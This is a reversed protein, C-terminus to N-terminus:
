LDLKLATLAKRGAAAGGTRRGGRKMGGTISVQKDEDVDGSSEPADESSAEGSDEKGPAVDIRPPARAAVVPPPARAVIPGPAVPPMASSAPPAAQNRVVREMQQQAQKNVQIEDRMSMMTSQMHGMRRREEDLQARLARIEDQARTDVAPAHQQGPHQQGPHPQHQVHHTGSPPQDRDRMHQGPTFDARPLPADKGIFSNSSSPPRMIPRMPPANPHNAHQMPAPPHMPTPPASHVVPPRMPGGGGGLAGGLGGLGGGGGGLGGMVMGLMSGLNFKSGTPAPKADASAQKEPLKGGNIKLKLHHKVMSSGILWGFEAEPSMNGLRWHKKYLRELVHDYRQRDEIFSDAWGDLQLIPGWRHNASEIGTFVFGLTDRILAVNNATTLNSKIRDYEFQIDGLSDDMTYERTLKINYPPGQFKQLELLYGQKEM